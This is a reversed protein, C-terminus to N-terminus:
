PGTARPLVVSVGASDHEVQGGCTALLVGAFRAATAVGRRDHENRDNDTHVDGIFLRVDAAGPECRLSLTGGGEGLRDQVATFLNLLAFKLVDRRVPVFVTAVCDTSFTNRALRCQAEV